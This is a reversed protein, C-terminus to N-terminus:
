LLQEGLLVLVWFSIIMAPLFPMQAENNKSIQKRLIWFVIGLGSSLILYVLVAQLYFVRDGSPFVLATLAGILGAM